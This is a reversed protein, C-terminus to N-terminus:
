VPDLPAAPQVFEHRAGQQGTGDPVRRNHEDVVEFVVMDEAIHIGQADDCETGLLGGETTGYSDAVPADWTERVQKRVDAALVEATSAIRRPHIHLRGTQQEEVLRRAFSPYTFIVEPQLDARPWHDRASLEAALRQVAQPELVPSTTM